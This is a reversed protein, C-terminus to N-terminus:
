PPRRLSCCPDRSYAAMACTWDCSRTPWSVGYRTRYRRAAALTQSNRTHNRKACTFSM